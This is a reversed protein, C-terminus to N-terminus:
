DKASRRDEGDMVQEGLGGDLKTGPTGMCVSVAALDQDYFQGKCFIWFNCDIGRCGCNPGVRYSTGIISWTSRANRRPDYKELSARRRNRQKM